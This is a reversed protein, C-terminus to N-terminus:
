PWTFDLKDTVGAAAATALTKEKAAALGEIRDVHCEVYIKKIRDLHDSALIADLVVYEAGEIDMKIVVNPGGVMDLVEAISIVDVTKHTDYTVNSKGSVITAGEYHRGPKPEEYYLEMQGTQDSVAKNFIQINPYNKVQRQLEAFVHPNPEFSYVARAYHSFEISAKGIHAGLDIVVDDKSFLRAMRRMAAADEDLAWDPVSWGIRRFQDRIIGRLGM